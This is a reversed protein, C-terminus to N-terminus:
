QWCKAQKSASVLKGAWHTAPGCYPLEMKNIQDLDFLNGHIYPLGLWQPCMGVSVNIISELLHDHDRSTETLGSRGQCTESHASAPTQARTTAATSIGGYKTWEALFGNAPVRIVKSRMPFIHKRQSTSLHHRSAAPHWRTTIPLHQVLFRWFYANEKIKNIFHLAKNRGQADPKVGIDGWFEEWDTTSSLNGFIRGPNISDPSFHSIDTYVFVRPLFTCFPM